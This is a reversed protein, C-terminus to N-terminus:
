QKKPERAGHMEPLDHLLNNLRKELDKKANYLIDFAVNTNVAKVMAGNIVEIATILGARIVSDMEDYSLQGPTSFFM